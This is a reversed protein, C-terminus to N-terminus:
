RFSETQEDIKEMALFKKCDPCCPQTDPDFNPRPMFLYGYRGRRIYGCKDRSDHVCRGNRFLHVPPTKGAAKKALDLRDWDATTYGWVGGTKSRTPDETM